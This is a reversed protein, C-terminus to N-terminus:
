RRLTLGTLLAPLVPENGVCPSGLVPARRRILTQPDVRTLIVGSCRYASRWSSSAKPSVIAHAPRQKHLISLPTPPPSTPPHWHSSISSPRYASALPPSLHLPSPSVRCFPARFSTGRLLRLCRSHSYPEASPVRASSTRSAYATDLWFPPTAMCGYGQRHRHRHGRREHERGPAKDDDMQWHDDDAASATDIHFSLVPQILTRALAEAIKLQQTPPPHHSAPRRRAADSELASYGASGAAVWLRRLEVGHNGTRTRKRRQGRRGRARRRGLGNWADLEGDDEDAGTM